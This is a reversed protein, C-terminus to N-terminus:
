RTGGSLAAEIRELMADAADAWQHRSDASDPDNAAEHRQRSAFEGLAETLVFYDDGAMLGFVVTRPPIAAKKGAEHARIFLDAIVACISDEYGALWILIRRGYAGLEVGATECARALLQRNQAESLISWGREPPIVAHAAARAEQETAFPGSM